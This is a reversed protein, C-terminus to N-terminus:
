RDLAVAVLLGFGFLGIMAGSIRNIRRLWAESIQGHLLGILTTLMFWWLSSGAIVSAVLLGAGASSHRYGLDNAAGAIIATFAVLTAPNTVTLLFTSAITHPLDDTGALGPNGKVRKEMLEPPDAYYTHAGLAVLLLGGPMKIWAEYRLVLDSIASLGFAAVIAFVGDGLAAGLGSLFGNLQGFSLTRRICVLNVAGIPAAVVLGILIGGITVRMWDFSM